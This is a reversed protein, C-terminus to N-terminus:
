KGDTCGLEGLTDLGREVSEGELSDFLMEEDSSEGELVEDIVVCLCLM